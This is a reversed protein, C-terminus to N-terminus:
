FLRAMALGLFLAAVGLTNQAALNLVALAYQNERFLGATEFAFTSFTTFAGMFGTLVIIRSDGDWGWKEVAVAFFAGFLFCGIMNVAFTHWPFPGPAMRQVLVGCGYRSLTGLGGAVALLLLKTAM